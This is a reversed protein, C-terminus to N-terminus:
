TSHEFGDSIPVFAYQSGDADDRWLRCFGRGADRWLVGVSDNEWGAGFLVSALKERTFVEVSPM